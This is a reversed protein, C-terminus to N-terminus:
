KKKYEEGIDRKMMIEHTMLSGLLNHFYLIDSDKTETIANVKPDWVRPLTRLILHFRREIQKSKQYSKPERVQTIAGNNDCYLSISLEITSVM